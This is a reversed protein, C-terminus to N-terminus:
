RLMKQYIKEDAEASSPGGPLGYDGLTEQVVKLLFEVLKSGMSYRGLLSPLFLSM